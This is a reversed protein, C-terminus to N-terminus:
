FTCQVGISEIMEIFKQEEQVSYLLQGAGSEAEHRLGAVNPLVIDVFYSKM